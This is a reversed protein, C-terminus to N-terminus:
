FILYTAVNEIIRHSWLPILADSFQQSSEAYPCPEFFASHVKHPFFWKQIILFILNKSFCFCSFCLQTSRIKNKRPQEHCHSFQLIFWRVHTHISEMPLQGRGPCACARLDLPWIRYVGFGGILYMECTNGGRNGPGTQHFCLLHTENLQIMFRQGERASEVYCNAREQKLAAGDARRVNKAPSPFHCPTNGASDWHKELFVLPMTGPASVLKVALDGSAPSFNWGHVALLLPAPGSM